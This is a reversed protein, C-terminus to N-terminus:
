NSKVHRLTLMKIRNAPVDTIRDGYHADRVTKLESVDANPPETHTLYLAVDGTPGLLCPAFPAGQFKTTDDCRLWTGDDKLVAVQYVRYKSNAM